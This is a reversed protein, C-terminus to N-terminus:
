NSSQLAAWNISIAIELEKLDFGVPAIKSWVAPLDFNAKGTSPDIVLHGIDPDVPEFTYTGESEKDVFKVGTVFVYLLAGAANLYKNVVDYGDLTIHFTDSKELSM